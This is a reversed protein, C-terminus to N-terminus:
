CVVLKSALESGHPFILYLHAAPDLVFGISSVNSESSTCQGMPLRRMITPIRTAKPRNVIMTSRSNILCQKKQM